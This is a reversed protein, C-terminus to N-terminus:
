KDIKGGYYGIVDRFSNRMRKLYRREEDPDHSHHPISNKTVRKSLYKYIDILSELAIEDVLHKPIEM